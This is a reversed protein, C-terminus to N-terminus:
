SSSIDRSFITGWEFLRYRLMRLKWLGWLGKPGAPGFTAAAAREETEPAYGLRRYFTKSSENSTVLSVRTCGRRRAFDEAGGMLMRGVGFRRAEPLVSLKWVSAEGKVPEVGGARERSLTHELKVCVCGIPRGEADDALQAVLFASPEPGADPLAVSNWKKNFVDPAMSSKAQADAIARSLTKYLALGAPTYLAAGFAVLLVPVAIPAGCYRAAGAIAAWSVFTTPSSQLRAHGSYAQESFGAAWMSKVAGNDADRYSRLVVKPPTM